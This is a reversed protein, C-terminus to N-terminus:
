PQRSGPQRAQGMTQSSPDTLKTEDVVDFNEYLVTSPRPPAAEVCKRAAEPISDSAVVTEIKFAAGFVAQLM